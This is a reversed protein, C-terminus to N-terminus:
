GTGSHKEKDPGYPDDLLSTRSQYEMLRDRLQELAQVAGHAQAFKAHNDVTDDRITSFHKIRHSLDKLIIQGFDAHAMILAFDADDPKPVRKKERAPPTRAEDLHALGRLRGKVKEMIEAPKNM